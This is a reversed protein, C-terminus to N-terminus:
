GALGPRPVGLRPHLRGAVLFAALLGGGGAAFVAALPAALLVLGAIGPTLINSADRFTSYIGAMETRESPKVAMLFPLGGFVDLAVLFVTALLLLAVAVAPLGALLAALLFLVGSGLFGLRVALRVPRGRLARQMLPAAFLLASSLSMTIGGVQAGLGTDIAFIPVYVVFVWWGCSRITAFWWGAVLRPQALFRGLYALPNPTPGRARRILRGNGLRLAWFVALLVLAAVAAILFPAPRWAEYLLVGIVPGFTWALGTYSIRLSEARPLEGRPIADLVYANLCVFVTVSGLMNGLVGLATLPGGAVTAAAGAVFTLAGLTFMWRRPVLRTAWPVMLGGFFSVVGAAFYLASVTRADGFASYMAVPMASVQIGRVVAEVGALLAFERAGPSGPHFALRALPGPLSRDPM